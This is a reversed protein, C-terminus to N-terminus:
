GRLGPTGQSRKQECPHLPDAEGVWVFVRRWVGFRFPMAEAMGVFGPRLRAGRQGSRLRLALTFGCACDQAFGFPGFQRGEGWLSHVRYGPESVM